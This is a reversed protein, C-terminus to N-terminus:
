FYRKQAFFAWNVITEKIKIGQNRSEPHCIYSIIHSGRDHASILWAQVAGIDETQLVQCLMQMM